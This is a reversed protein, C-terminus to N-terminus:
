GREWDISELELLQNRYPLWTPLCPNGSHYSSGLKQKWDYILKKNYTDLLVM